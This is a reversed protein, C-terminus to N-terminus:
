GSVACQALLRPLERLFRLPCQQLDEPLEGLPRPRLSVQRKEFGGGGRLPAYIPPTSPVRSRVNRLCAYLDRLFARDRSVLHPHARRLKRSAALTASRAASYPLALADAVERFTHGQGALRAAKAQVDTLRANDCAQRWTESEWAGTIQM